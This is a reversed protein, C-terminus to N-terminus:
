LKYTHFLEKNGQREVYNIAEEKSGFEVVM